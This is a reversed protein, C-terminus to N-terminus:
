EGDIRIDGSAIIDGKIKTGESIINIAQNLSEGSPKLSQKAM